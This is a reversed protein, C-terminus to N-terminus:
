APDTFLDSYPAAIKVLAAPTHGSFRRFERIFHSQDAYGSAHAIRAWDIRASSHQLYALARQFRVVGAYEKPNMGALAYFTREFQKRSLCAAAALEAVPTRPETCLQRVAADIRRLELEPPCGRRKRTLHDNLRATLWEDLLAICRTDEECEAIRDALLNLSRNELDYGPIERNYLESMPLGLFAGAAHPRFVVVVTDIGGDSVLHAPFNVQGSVTLRSQDADLEPIHFHTGRHFIIQPCGIPFTLTRVPQEGRLVWYYRVYPRLPEAPRYFGFANRDM